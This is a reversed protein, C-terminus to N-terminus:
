VAENTEHVGPKAAQAPEPGTPDVAHLPRGGSPLFAAARRQKIQAAISGLAEVVSGATEVGTGFLRADSCTPDVVLTLDATHRDKETTDLLDDLLGGGFGRCSLLDLVLAGELRTFRRLHSAVLDRNQARIRGTVKVVTAVSRLQTRIQVGQCEIVYGTSDSRQSHTIM